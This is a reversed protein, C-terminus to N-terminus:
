LHPEPYPKGPSRRPWQLTSSVQAQSLPLLELDTAANPSFGLDEPWHKRSQLASIERYDILREFGSWIIIMITQYSGDINREIM